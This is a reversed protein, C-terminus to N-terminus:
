GLRRGLRRRFRGDAGAGRSRYDRGSLIHRRPLNIERVLLRRRCCCRSVRGPLRVTGLLLLLLLLLLVARLPTPGVRGACSRRRSSNFLRLVDANHQHHIAAGAHTQPQVVVHVADVRVDGRLAGRAGVRAQRQEEEVVRELLHELKLRSRVHL